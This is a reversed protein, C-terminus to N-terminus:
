ELRVAARELTRDVDKWSMTRDVGRGEVIVCIVGGIVGEGREVEQEVEEERGAEMDTGGRKVMRTTVSRSGTM